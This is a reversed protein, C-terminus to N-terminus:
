ILSNATMKLLDTQTHTQYLTYFLKIIYLANRERYNHPHTYKEFNTNQEKFCSVYASPSYRHKSKKKAFFLFHSKLNKHKNRNQKKETYQRSYYILM